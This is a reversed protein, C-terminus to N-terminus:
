TPEGNETRRGEAPLEFLLAVVDEETRLSYVTDAPLLVGEGPQLRTDDDRVSVLLRGSVVILAATGDARRNLMARGPALRLGQARLANPLGAPQGAPTARIRQLSM